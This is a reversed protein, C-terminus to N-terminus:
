HPHTLDQSMNFLQRLLISGSVEVRPMFNEPKPKDGVAQLLIPNTSAMAEAVLKAKDAWEVAKGSTRIPLM